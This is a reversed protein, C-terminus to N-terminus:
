LVIVANLSCPPLKQEIRGKAEGAQWEPLVLMYIFILISYQYLSLALSFRCARIFAQGLPVIDAALRVHVSRPDFGSSRPLLGAVLRKIWPITNLTSFYSLSQPRVTCYVWRM